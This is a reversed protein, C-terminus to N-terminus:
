RSDLLSLRHRAYDPELTWGNAAEWANSLRKARRHDDDNLVQIGLNSLDHWVVDVRSEDWDLLGVSRDPGIRLNEPGPDGHVVAAPVDAFAAFIELLREAIEVPTADLDVDVSRRWQALDRIIVCGPRQPYAGTLDHLRRLEDAVLHWDSRSSPARGDVWRQVVVGNVSSRGDSTRLVPPVHFGADTLFALLEVEWALSEASRRSRRVVVRDGGLSGLWVANRSGGRLPEVLALGDWPGVDIM